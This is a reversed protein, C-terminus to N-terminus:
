ILEEWAGDVSTKLDRLSRDNWIVVLPVAGVLACKRIADPQHALRAQAAAETMGRTEIMRQLQTEPQARIWWVADCGRHQESEILKVAEVVVVPPPSERARLADLKSDRLAAVAPHVHLELERLARANQFVLAGLARRDIGGNVDLINADPFLAAIHAAFSSDAYLEHVLADADITEAGREKLFLAVTSKGAAIDGTLGLIKMFIRCIGAISIAAALGEPPHGRPPDAKASTFCNM